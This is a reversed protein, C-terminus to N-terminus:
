GGELGKGGDEGGPDYRQTEMGGSGPQMGAPEM